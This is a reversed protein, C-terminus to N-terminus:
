PGVGNRVYDKLLTVLKRITVTTNPCPAYDTRLNFSAEVFDRLYEGLHKNGQCIQSFKTEAEEMHEETIFTEELVSIMEQCSMELDILPTRGMEARMSICEQQIPTQRDVRQPNTKCMLIRAKEWEDIVRQILMRNQQSSTMSEKTKEIEHRFYNNLERFYTQATKNDLQPNASFGTPIDINKVVINSKVVERLLASSADNRATNRGELLGRSYMMDSSAPEKANTGPTSTAPMSSDRDPKPTARFEEIDM